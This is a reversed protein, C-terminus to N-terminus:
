RTHSSTGQKDDDKVVFGRRLRLARQHHLRVQYIVHVLFLAAVVAFWTWGIKGLIVYLERM